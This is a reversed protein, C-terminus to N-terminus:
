RKTWLTFGDQDGSLVNDFGGTLWGSSFTVGVIHVGNYTDPAVAWARDFEGGGMYTSWRHTGMSTFRAAFGDTSTNYSTDWGGSPWGGGSGTDGVVYVDGRSDTTIGWAADSGGGGLYTSWLHQGTTKMAYVFADGVSSYSTDWGGSAWSASHTKGAVYIKNNAGIAVSNGYDGGSGGIHRTWVHKGGAAFKTLFGDQTGGLTTDKGRIAWNDSWTEGCVLVDGRGDVAVGNAMDNASGGIYSGRLTRGNVWMRAYFGDDAGNHTTDPGKTIWGASTTESAIHVAENPSCVVANAEDSGTGGLFCSWVHTGTRRLRAVFADRSGNHTHDGVGGSTWNNGDTRGVVYLRGADSLAVGYAYDTDTGGLYTGWLRVGKRTYKLVFADQNGNHSMDFGGSFWATASMTYGVAYVCRDSHLTVDYAVEVDSGGVYAGWQVAPDIVLDVTPDYDGLTFGVAGNDGIAFASDVAVRVGDIDQYAIPADDILEGEGLDVHLAGADDVTVGEAGDYRVLIDGPDAGPAVHYEYKLNASGGSVFLDVGDYLGDYAVTGFVRARDVWGSPDDGLHYNYRMRAVDLGTPAVAAAGDFRMNVAEALLDASDGEQRYGVFSLGQETFAVNAGRTRYLYHIESDWQGLNEM